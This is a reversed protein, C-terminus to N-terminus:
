QKVKGADFAARAKEYADQSFINSEPNKYAKGTAYPVLVIM